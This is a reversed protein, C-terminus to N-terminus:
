CVSYCTSALGFMSILARMLKPTLYSSQAVSVVNPALRFRVDSIKSSFDLFEINWKVKYNRKRKGNCLNAFYKIFPGNYAKLSTITHYNVASYSKVPHLNTLNPHLSFFNCHSWNQPRDNKPVSNKNLGQNPNTITIMRYFCTSTQFLWFIRWNIETDSEKEIFIIIIIIHWKYFNSHNM